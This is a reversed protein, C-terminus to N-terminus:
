ICVSDLNKNAESGFDFFLIIKHIINTHMAFYIQRFQLNYKTHGRHQEHLGKHKGSITNSITFEWHMRGQRKPMSCHMCAVAYKLADCDIKALHLATLTTRVTCIKSHLNVTLAFSCYQSPMALTCCSRGRLQLIDSIHRIYGHFFNPYFTQSFTCNQWFLAKKPFILVSQISETPLSAHNSLTTM